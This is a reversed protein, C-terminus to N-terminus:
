PQVEMDKNQVMVMNKGQAAKVKKCYDKCADLSVSPCAQLVVKHVKTLKELSGFVKNTLKNCGTLNISSLSERLPATPACLEGVGANTIRCCYSLDLSQLLPSHQIIVALSEMSIDTGALSLWVCRHLRSISDDLGPHRDIPPSFLDSLAADGFGQVWSLDLSTLLPCTSSCLACVSGWSNGALSLKKLHPLRPMLWELQVRRVNTWSLNLEQPQRMVIGVLHCQRVKKRELNISCWLQPALCWRHWTKCVRMCVALDKFDLWAFVCMWNEQDLAHNSDDTLTVHKPAPPIPAPRIVRKPVINKEKKELVAESSSSPQPEEGGGGSPSSSPPDEKSTKSADGKGGSRQGEIPLAQAKSPTSTSDKKSAPSAPCQIM